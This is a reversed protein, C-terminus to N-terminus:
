PVTHSAKTGSDLAQANHMLNFIRNGSQELVQVWAQEAAADTQGSVQGTVISNLDMYLWGSTYTVPVGSGGVTVVQTAAGFGTVSNLAQAHEQEDFEVVGEQSLPYWAPPVGCTFYAPTSKPDRWVILSTNGLPPTLPPFGWAPSTPTPITGLTFNGNVFRAGFNTPLPQRNDTATFSDFAGYFTYGGSTSTLTDTGSAHIHVLNGGRAIAHLQDYYFVEGTMQFQNTADGTGGSGFYGVDGPFRPTCNNVTDVTVYGRAVNDGHNVGACMGSVNTSAQGTLSTQLNNIQAAGLALPPPLRAYSNIPPTYVGTNCSAFNIDQSFTGHPSITDTPDQGASATRPLTGNLVARMDILQTDFGTLYVNFNFVPVGLDSWIVVHALIATPGQLNANSGSFGTVGMNNITFITDMGTPNALDVEFYPLLLTAGATDSLTATTSTPFTPQFGFANGICLVSLVSAACALLVLKQLRTQM